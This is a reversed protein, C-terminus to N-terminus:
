LIDKIQEIQESTLNTPFEIHFIVIMNGTHEKRKMGLGNYMKKCGPYVISIKGQKNNQLTMTQGNIHQIEMSFGCLAEKLTLNKEVLLDLGVRKWPTNNIIKICIKIDGQITDYINGKEKLIIIEGDDTGQPIDIYILETESIKVGNQINMRDIEIPLQIGNYSNEISITVNKIIPLPKHLVNSFMESFPNSGHPRGGHFFHMPARNDFLGQFIGIVDEPSINTDINIQQLHPYKRSLDYSKRKDIPKVGFFDSVM